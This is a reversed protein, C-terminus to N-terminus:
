EERGDIRWLIGTLVESVLLREKKRIEQIEEYSGPFWYINQYNNPYRINAPDEYLRFHVDSDIEFSLLLVDGLNTPHYGSVILLTQERNIENVFEPRVRSLEKNWWTEALLSNVNSSISTIMLASILLRWKIDTKQPARDLKNTIFYAVVMITATNAPVFYRGTISRMGGFILDLVIFIGITVLYILTLFLKEQKTGHRLLFLFAYATFILILLRLFYPALNATNSNFDLDLLPSSFLLIWRQIFRYWATQMSLVDVQRAIQQWRTIVFYLWPAYALFAFLSALLFGMYKQKYHTLHIGIFYFGHVVAVLIFLQHSYVGLILTLSYLMWANINNKQTARLLAASSLITVLTWLSYPRADQSFLIHFPSIALFATSVLATRSSRFLERSFWYMAPISLLGFLAALGRMASPTFGIFHMWYHALLFFLPAQHPRYLAILSLIHIINKDESPKLFEQIDEVTKDKGDWIGAFVDGGLYGAAYLSTYAEDHSYMKNGLGAVRFFVGLGFVVIVLVQFWRSNAWFSPLSQEKQDLNQNIRNM